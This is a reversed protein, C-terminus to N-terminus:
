VTFYSCQTIKLSIGKISFIERYFPLIQYLGGLAQQITVKALSLGFELELQASNLKIKLKVGGVRGGVYGSM